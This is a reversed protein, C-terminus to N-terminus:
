LEGTPVGWVSAAMCERARGCVTAPLQSGGAGALPVSTCARPSPSARAAVLPGGRLSRPSRAGPTLACAYVASRLRPPELRQSLSLVATSAGSRSPSRSISDLHSSRPPFRSASGPRTIKPLFFTLSAPGPCEVAACPRPHPGHAHCRPHSGTVRLPLKRTLSSSVRDSPVPGQADRANFHSSTPFM